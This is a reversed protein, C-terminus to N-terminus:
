IDYNWALYTLEDRRKAELYCEDGSRPGHHWTTLLPCSAHKWESAYMGRGITLGQLVLREYRSVM